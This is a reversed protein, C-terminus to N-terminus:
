ITEDPLADKKHNIIQFRQPADRPGLKAEGPTGRTMNTKNTPQGKTGFTLSALAVNQYETSSHCSWCRLVICALIGFRMTM